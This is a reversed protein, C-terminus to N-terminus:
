ERKEIPIVCFQEGSAIERDSKFEVTRVPVGTGESGPVRFRTNDLREVPKETPKEVQPVWDYPVRYARYVMNIAKPPLPTGAIPALEPVDERWGKYPNVYEWVIEHEPTVEIFRGYAGETILTNGNPLRQASSVFGSYFMFAFMPIMYGAEAPTYQWVIELTRPDFELIRTYDRVANDVGTPAGPNPAGYGGWGGNDFVLINGEGPLGRPIMHAHHQGIIQGLKRLEPTAFYDPGVQWVINGTEKSIIAIINTQRGDWIINDPHFREDGQDYWKNPGLTSFANIHMWDGVVGAANKIIGPRRYMTNKAEEGFKMEDFHESCVWEWVINGQGDIEIIADDLLMKDSIDPNKVNKHVLILTNGKELSAEMGPSYYGVPNGAIQFDHHQRAMWAAESGPEEINEYRDFKWVTNGDWDVLLLDVMEMPCYKPNRIGTSGFIYGGPMIRNPFGSLRKWLNVVNGNMDILVAAANEGGNPNSNFVTYGNWCKEPNYITTGMPYVTSAM